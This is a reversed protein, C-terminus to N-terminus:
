SFQRVDICENEVENFSVAERGNNWGIHDIRSILINM